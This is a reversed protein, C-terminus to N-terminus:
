RQRATVILRTASDIRILPNIARDFATIALEIPLGARSTVMWRAANGLLKVWRVEDGYAIDLWGYTAPYQIVTANFKLVRVVELRADNLRELLKSGFELGVHGDNEVFGKQFREPDRRAYRALLNNSLVDCQIVVHGGPRLVRRAEDLVRTKMSSNLHEWVYSSYVVDVSSSRIPLEVLDAQLAATYIQSALELGTISLEIGIAVGHEGLWAIGGACGLDLVTGNEPLVRRIEGVVGSQALNFFAWRKLRGTLGKAASETFRMQRSYAGEYFEDIHDVFRVISNELPYESQCHRCRVADAGWELSEHCHPCCIVSRALDNRAPM